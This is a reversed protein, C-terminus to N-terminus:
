GILHGTLINHSAIQDIRGSNAFWTNFTVADGAQLNLTTTHSLQEEYNPFNTSLVGLSGCDVRRNVGNVYFSAYWYSQVRVMVTVSFSYVGAVPATFTSNSTNYHNGRNYVVNNFIVKAEDVVTTNGGSGYAAFAPQNPSTVYGQQSIKFKTSFSADRVDLINDGDAGIYGGGVSGSGQRFLGLQASGSNATLRTYGNSDRIEVKGSSHTFVDGTGKNLQPVQSLDIETSGADDPASLDVYGSNDGQIRLKAM